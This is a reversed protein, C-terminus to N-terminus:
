LRLVALRAPLEGHPQAADVRIKVPFEAAGGEAALLLLVAAALTRSALRM